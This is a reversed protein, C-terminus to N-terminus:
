RRRAVESPETTTTTAAAAAAAAKVERGVPAERGGGLDIAGMIEKARVEDGVSAELDAWAEYVPPYPPAVAAGREFAVRAADPDGGEGGAGYAEFLGFELWLPAANPHERVGRSFLDRATEVEGESAEMTAWAQYLFQRPEGDRTASTARLGSAFRSRAAAAGAVRREFQGWQLWTTADSADANAARAFLARAATTNGARKELLAWARLHTARERATPPPGASRSRGGAAAPAVAYAGGEGNVAAGVDLREWSGDDVSGGLGIGHSADVNASGGGGGSFGDRHSGDFGGGANAVAAGEALFRRARPVDGAYMAAAAAATLCPLNLAREDCRAGTEFAAIATEFEGLEQATTGLAHWTAPSRGHAASLARLARMAGELDGGTKMALARAHLLRANGPCHSLGEDIVALRRAAAASARRRGGGVVGTRHEGADRGRLAVEEADSWLVWAAANTPCADVSERFLTRALSLTSAGTSNGRRVEHHAMTSLLSSRALLSSASAGGGAADGGGGSRVRLGRTADRTAEEGERFVASAKAVNGLKGEMQAWAQWTPAHTADLKTAASFLKRAEVYRRADAELCGWAQLTSARPSSGEARVADRFLRRAKSVRGRGREFVAWAHLSPAHAPDIALSRAFLDRASKAARPDGATARRAEMTAWVQLIVANTPHAEHARALIETAEAIADEPAADAGGGGGGGDGGTACAVVLRATTTALHANDPSSALGDRAIALARTADGAREADLARTLTSRSKYFDKRAARKARYAEKAAASAASADDDATTSSSSSSSKSSSSKSSSAVGVTEARSARRWRAAAAVRAVSRRRPPGSTLVWRACPGATSAAAFARM